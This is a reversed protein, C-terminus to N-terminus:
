AVDVGAEKLMAKMDPTLNALMSEQDYSGLRSACYVLIVSLLLLQARVLHKMGTVDGRRLRRRARLEMIGAALVLAGVLLGSLDGLLLTLLMGMAAIVIVSWGDVASIALVRKLAKEAPTPVPTTM